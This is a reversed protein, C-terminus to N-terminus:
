GILEASFMLYDNADATNVFRVAQGATLGAVVTVLLTVRNSSFSFMAVETAAIYDTNYLGFTGMLTLTPTTRMEGLLPVDVLAQTTSIAVGNGFGAYQRSATIKQAYYNCKLKEDQYRTPTFPTAKRGIEFKVMALDFTGSQNGLSDTRANYNTGAEFWFRISTYSNEGITKGAVNPMTLTVTYKTWGNTITKKVAGIGTISASGGVGFNQIFEVSINKSADAKAWFSLTMIKNTFLSVDNIYQTKHAFSGIANGSTVVTRSFYKPNDIVINQGPNFTERTHLITTGGLFSSAWRDDSGYALGSQSIGRQWVDFNGNIIENRMFSQNILENIDCITKEVDGMSDIFTPQSWAYTSDSAKISTVRVYIEDGKITYAASTVGNNTQLVRGDRGIFSINSSETSEATMINDSLSVSVDNGTSAYFNGNRLSELIATKSNTDTHVVVWGKNFQIGINHCDDVALGFVKRGQSLIVDWHDAGNDGLISNYIEIFNFDYYSKLEDESLNYYNENYPHAFCCMKNNNRHYEIIEQPLASTSQTDIDFATIHKQNTEEVGSGIWTIGAVEPDPTVFDHDTITLFDFGATKYANALESPTSLGDSNTTHCHLQGKLALSGGNHYPNNIIFENGEYELYLKTIKTYTADATLADSISGNVSLIIAGGGYDIEFGETITVGNNKIVPTPSSLWNRKNIPAQFIRYRDDNSIFVETLSIATETTTLVGISEEIKGVAEQLGSIHTSRMESSTPDQWNTKSM